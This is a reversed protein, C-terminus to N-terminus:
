VLSFQNFYFMKKINLRTYVFDIRISFQITQFLGTKIDLPTYVFDIRIRFQITQFLVTKINLLTYVFDIRISFQITQFLVTKINLRTYVFDIRISFQIPQILVTQSLQIAPFLFKKLLQVEYEHKVSYNLISSIIRIFRKQCYIVKLPQYAIFSLYGVLWVIFRVNYSDISM